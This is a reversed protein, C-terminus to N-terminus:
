GHKKRRKYIYNKLRKINSYSLRRLFCYLELNKRHPERSVTDNERKVFFLNPFADYGEAEHTIVLLNNHPNYRQLIAIIHNYNQSIWRIEDINKAYRVFLTPSQIARYFRRIRRDYKQKVSLIQNDFPEDDVFDHYFCLDYKDQIWHHPEDLHRLGSEDFLGSFNNEILHLVGGRIELYNAM